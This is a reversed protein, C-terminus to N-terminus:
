IKQTVLREMIKKRMPEYKVVLEPPESLVPEKGILFTDLIEPIRDLDWYPIVL